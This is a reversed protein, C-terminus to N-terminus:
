WQYIFVFNQKGTTVPGDLNCTYQQSGGFNDQSSCPRCMALVLAPAHPWWCGQAYAVLEGTCEVLFLFLSKETKTCYYASIISHLISSWGCFGLSQVSSPFVLVFDWHIVYNWM